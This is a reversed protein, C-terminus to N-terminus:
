PVLVTSWAQARLKMPIIHNRILNEGTPTKTYFCQTLTARRVIESYVGQVTEASDTAKTRNLDELYVREFALFAEFPSTPRRQRWSVKDLIIDIVNNAAIPAACEFTRNVENIARTVIANAQDFLQNIRAAASQDALAILGKLEDIHKTVDVSLQTALAQLGAILDNVGSRLESASGRGVNELPNWLQQAALAQHSSACFLVLCLITALVKGLGSTM